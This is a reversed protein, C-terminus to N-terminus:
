LIFKKINEIATKSIKRGNDNKLGDLIGGNSEILALYFARFDGGYPRMISESTLHNLGPIQSLMIAGINERVINGGKLKNIGVSLYSETTQEMKHEMTQETTDGIALPTPTYYLVKGKLLDRKIKDLMALIINGTEDLSSSRIVSYGKFLQISTICSYLLKRKDDKLSSITGELLYIINHCHINTSHKLRFSQENYRGDKLSAFLDAFSKREIIVMPTEISHGIIVDGLPLQHTEFPVVQSNFKEILACERNDLILKIAGDVVPIAAACVNHDCEVKEDAVTTLDVVVNEKKTKKGIKSM